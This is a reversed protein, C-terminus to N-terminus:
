PWEGKRIVQPVDALNSYRDAESESAGKQKGWFYEITRAAASRKRQSRWKDKKTKSRTSEHVLSRGSYKQAQTSAQRRDPPMAYPITTNGGLLDSSRVRSLYLALSM